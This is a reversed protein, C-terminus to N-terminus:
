ADSDAHFDAVSARIQFHHLDTVKKLMKQVRLWLRRTSNTFEARQACGPLESAPNLNIGLSNEDQESIFLQQM